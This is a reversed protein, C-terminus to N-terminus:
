RRMASILLNSSTECISPRSTLLTCPWEGGEAPAPARRPQHALGHEFGGEAGALTHVVRAEPEV